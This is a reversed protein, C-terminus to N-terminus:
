NNLDLTGYGKDLHSLYKCVFLFENETFQGKNLFDTFMEENITQDEKIFGINKVGMDNLIMKAIDLKQINQFVLIVNKQSAIEKLLEKIDM